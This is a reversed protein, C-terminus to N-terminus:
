AGSGDVARKITAITGASIGAITGVVVDLPDTTQNSLGYEIGLNFLAASAGFVTTNLIRTNAVNMESLRSFMSKALDLTMITGVAMVSGVEVSSLHDILPMNELVSKAGEGGSIGHIIYAIMAVEAVVAPIIASTHCVPNSYCREPSPM